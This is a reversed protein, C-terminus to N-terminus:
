LARALHDLLHEVYRNEAAALGLAMAHRPVIRPTGDANFTGEEVFVSYSVDTFATLTGEARLAVEDIFTNDHWHGTRYARLRISAKVESLLITGFSELSENAAADLREEIQLLASPVTVKLVYDFM